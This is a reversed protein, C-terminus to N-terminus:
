APLVAGHTVGPDDIGEEVGEGAVDPADADKGFFRRRKEAWAAECGSDPM